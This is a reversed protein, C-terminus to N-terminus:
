GRLPSTSTSLAETGSSIEVDEFASFYTDMEYLSWAEPRMNVQGGYADGTNGCHRFEDFHPNINGANAVQCLVYVRVAGNELGQRYHCVVNVPIRWESIKSKLDGTAIATEVQKSNFALGLSMISEQLVKGLAKTFAVDESAATADERVYRFNDNSAKPLQRLWRPPAATLSVTSFLLVVCGIVRFFRSFFTFLTMNM